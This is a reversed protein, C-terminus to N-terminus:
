RARRAKGPKGPLNQRRPAQKALTAIVAGAVTANTTLALLRVIARRVNALDIRTDILEDRVAALEHRVTALTTRKM